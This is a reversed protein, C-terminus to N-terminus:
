NDSRGKGKGITWERREVHGFPLIVGVREVHEITAEGRGTSM